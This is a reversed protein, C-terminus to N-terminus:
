EGGEKISSRQITIMDYFEKVDERLAALESVIPDLKRDFITKIQQLDEHTLSM